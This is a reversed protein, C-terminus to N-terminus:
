LEQKDEQINDNEKPKQKNILFTKITEDGIRNWEKQILRIKQKKTAYHNKPEPLYGYVRNVDRCSKNGGKLHELLVTMDYLQEVNM